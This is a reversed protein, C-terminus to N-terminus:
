QPTITLLNEINCVQEQGESINGEAAFFDTQICDGSFTASLAIYPPLEDNIQESISYGGAGLVILTGQPSGQFQSPSPNNGVINITFDEPGLNVFNQCVLPTPQIETNEEVCTLTKIVNLTSQSQAATTQTINTISLQNNLENENECETDKKCKNEQEIDANVESENEQEAFISVSNSYMGNALLISSLFLIGFLAFTNVKKM